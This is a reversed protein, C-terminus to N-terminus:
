RAGVIALPRPLDLRTVSAPRIPDKNPAYLGRKDAVPKFADTLGVV